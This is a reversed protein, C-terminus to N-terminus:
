CNWYSTASNEYASSLKNKILQEFKKPDQCGLLVAGGKLNKVKGINVSSEVPDFSSLIDSKTKNTTQNKDKPKVIVSKQANKAVTEGYSVKAHLDTATTQESSQNNYSNCRCFTM